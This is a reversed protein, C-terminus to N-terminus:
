MIGKAFDVPVSFVVGTDKESLDGIVSEIVKVAIELQTDQIVTLIINNKEREPSLFVRLSSLISIENDDHNNSLLKAMGMSDIVTAGKIDNKVFATLVEDLKETKNLVLFLLKM